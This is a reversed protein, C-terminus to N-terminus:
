LQIRLLQSSQDAIQHRRLLLQRLLLEVELESVLLGRELERTESVVGHRRHSHAMRNGYLTPTKESLYITRLLTM